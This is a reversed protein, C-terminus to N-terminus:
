TKLYKRGRVIEPDFPSEKKQPKPKTRNHIFGRLKAPFPYRGQTIVFAQLFLHHPHKLAPSIRNIVDIKKFGFFGFHLLPQFAFPNFAFCGVDFLQLIGFEPFYFLFQQFGPLGQMRFHAFVETAIKVVKFFPHFFAM